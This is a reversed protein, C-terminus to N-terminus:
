IAPEREAGETDEVLVGGSDRNQITSGVRERDDAIISLKGALKRIEEAELEGRVDLNASVSTSKTEIFRTNKFQGKSMNIMLFMLLAESPERVRTWSEEGVQVRKGEIIRFSRRSEVYEYGVASRMAQAVLFKVTSEQADAIAAAFEPHERLWNAVTTESVGLVYGLESRTFGCATLKAAVGPFHVRDYLASSRHARRNNLKGDVQLIKPFNV